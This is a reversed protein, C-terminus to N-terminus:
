SIFSKKEGLHSYSTLTATVAHLKPALECKSIYMQNYDTKITSTPRLLEVNRCHFYM